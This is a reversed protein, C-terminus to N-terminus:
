LGISQRALSDTVVFAVTVALTAFGSPLLVWAGRRRLILTLAVSLLTLSITVAFYSNVADVMLQYDCHNACAATSLPRIYMTIATLGTVITQLALVAATMLTLPPTKPSDLRRDVDSDFYTL